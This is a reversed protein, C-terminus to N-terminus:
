VTKVEGYKKLLSFKTRRLDFDAEEVRVRVREGLKYSVGGKLTYRAEDYTYEGKLSEVPVFGEVTNPLEVFFGHATVGSIVGDYEEGIRESMYMTTYLADVEREADAALRERESSRKAAESTFDAYKKVAEEYNGDLVEKIIRHITLDPYRRIPSTFHCYCDSALGFHGANIPAYRAKQMSRLMVRNLVPYAPLDEAGKLIKQYDYPKVDDANFKARVGLGLAFERFALAKEETPKEHVRYIFPAEISHMFSAVAENTLVMFQEIIEHSFPREYDPIVIEDQDTITIRAAKVDLEVSGRKERMEHLIQTLEAFLPVTDRVLPFKEAVREDGDLISQVEDYTMRYTSRIVSKELRVDKIAGKRDVTTVCSLTLRDVGENLSCIGNSLAKPLMPLVRDPFYVSTGREYAAQDLPSRYAVYHSVDAIHVGLEYLDGKKELSIADDIDRTDAGDITVVVQDRFDTRGTLDKATIPQKALREAEKEVAESFAEPLQFSRIISQEEVFFDEGDGLIETIKGEPAGHYPYDTIQVVVKSGDPIKFCSKFPIQVNEFYKREDPHVFAQRKRKWLTGVLETFGRELIAVIEAEDNSKGDYIREALVLDGHLAGRLSRHPIFYDNKGRECGDPTLFAFGRENGTLRGRLLGLQEVTGYRGSLSVAILGEDCLTELLTFLKGRDRYPLSLAKAIEDLTKNALEGSEFREYLIERASM